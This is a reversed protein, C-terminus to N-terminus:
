QTKTETIYCLVMQLEKGIRQWSKIGFSIHLSNTSVSVSLAYLCFSIVMNITPFVLLTLFVSPFVITAQALHLKRIVTHM